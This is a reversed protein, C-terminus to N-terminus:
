LRTCCKSVEPVDGKTTCHSRLFLSAARDTHHAMNQEANPSIRWLIRKWIPKPLIKGACGAGSDDGLGHSLVATKATLMQLLCRKTPVAPRRTRGPPTTWARPQWSSGPPSPNWVRGDCRSKEPVPSLPLPHPPIVHELAMLTTPLAVLCFLSRLDVVVSHCLARSSPMTSATNHM